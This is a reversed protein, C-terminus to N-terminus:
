QSWLGAKMGFVALDRGNKCELKMLMKSIYNRVTGETLFLDTAIASNKKGTVILKLIELEAKSLKKLATTDNTSDLTMKNQRDYIVRDLTVFGNCTNKIASALKDFTIGKLLYGDVGSQQAKLVFNDDYFTSLILIKIEKWRSCSKKIQKSAQFGDQGPLRIDMLILDPLLTKASEVAQIGNDAEGIVSIESENKLINILSRRVDRNDEVILVNIMDRIERSRYNHMSESDALLPHVM